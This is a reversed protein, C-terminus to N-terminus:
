VVSKRDLPLDCGDDVVGFARGRERVISLIEAPLRRLELDLKGRAVM